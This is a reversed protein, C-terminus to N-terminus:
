KRRRTVSWLGAQCAANVVRSPAGSSHSAEAGARRPVAGGAQGGPRGAAADGASRGTRHWWRESSSSHSRGKVLLCM